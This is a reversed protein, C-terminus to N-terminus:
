QEKKEVKIKSREGCEPCRLYLWAGHKDIGHPALLDAWFSLEFTHGCHPCTYATAGRHWSVLIVLGALVLLAWLYWLDPLLLFAGGGIVIVYILIYVVSRLYDGKEPPSTNM